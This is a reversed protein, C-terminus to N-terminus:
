FIRLTLMSSFFTQCEAKWIPIAQSPCVVLTVKYKRGAIRTILTRAHRIKEALMKSVEMAVMINRIADPISSKGAESEGGSQGDDEGEEEDEEESDEPDEVRQERPGDPQDKGGAGPDVPDSTSDIQEASM